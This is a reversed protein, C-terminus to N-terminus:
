LFIGVVFHYFLLGFMVVTGLATVLIPFVLSMGAGTARSRLILLTASIGLILFWFLACLGARFYEKQSTEHAIPDCLGGRKKIFRRLVWRGFRSNLFKKLRKIRRQQRRIKHLKRKETRKQKRIEKKSLISSYNPPPADAFTSLSSILVLCFIISFRLTNNQSIQM